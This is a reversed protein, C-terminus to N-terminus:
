NTIVTVGNGTLNSVATDSTSTRPEDDSLDIVSGNTYAGGNDADILFQDVELSTLGNPYRSNFDTDTVFINDLYIHNPSAQNANGTILFPAETQGNTYVGSTGLVWVSGDWYYLAVTKGTSNISFKYDQPNGYPDVGNVDGGIQVVSGGAYEYLKITSATTTRSIILGNQRATDVMGMNMSMVTNLTGMELNFSVFYEGGENLDIESGIGIAQYDGVSGGSAQTLQEFDLRGGTVSFDGDTGIKNITWKNLTGDSFDDEFINNQEVLTEDTVINSRFSQNGAEDFATQSFWYQTDEELGTYDYTLSNGVDIGADWNIGDVSKFIRYNVVGINDSASTWNLTITNHTTM